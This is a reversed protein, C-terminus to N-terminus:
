SLAAARLHAAVTILFHRYFLSKDMTFRTNQNRVKSLKWKTWISIPRKEAGTFTQSLTEESKAPWFSTKGLWFQKIKLIVSSTPRNQLYILPMKGNPRYLSYSPGIDHGLLLYFVSAWALIIYGFFILAFTAISKVYLSLYEAGLVISFIFIRTAM